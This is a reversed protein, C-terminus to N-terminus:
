SGAFISSGRGSTALWRRLAQFTACAGEVMAEEHGPYTAAYHNIFAGFAQWMPGVQDGYSHFFAAGATPQLDLTRRLRRTIIQGGLTAGELVYLCGCAQAPDALAPLDACTPLRALTASTEGLHLLDASLRAVKLRPRIDFNLLAWPLCVLRREVPLYFGYFRQLVLRYAGLSGALHPLDVQAELAAHYPHTAQKLREMTTPMSEM